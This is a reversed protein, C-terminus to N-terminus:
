DKSLGEAEVIINRYISPSEGMAIWEELTRVKVRKSGRLGM